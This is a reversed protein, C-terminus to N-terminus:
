AKTEDKAVDIKAVDIRKGSIIAALVLYLIVGVSYVWPQLVPVGVFPEGGIAVIFVYTSLTSMIINGVGKTKVSFILYFPVLLAFAGVVVAAMLQDAGTPILGHLALYVAIVEIPIYQRVKGVLEALTSAKVSELVNSM